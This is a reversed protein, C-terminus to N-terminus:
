RTLNYTSQTYALEIEDPDVSVDSLFEAATRLTVTNDANIKIFRIASPNAVSLINGGVTTLVKASDKILKGTTGDYLVVAGNVASAPGVVDGSGGGGTGWEVEYDNANTKKLVQGTTGGKPIGVKRVKSM